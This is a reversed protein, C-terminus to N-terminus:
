MRVCKDGEPGYLVAVKPLPPNGHVGRDGVARAAPQYTVTGPARGPLSFLRPLIPPCIPLRPCPESSFVRCPNPLLPLSSAVLIEIARMPDLKINTKARFPLANHSPPSTHRERNNGQGYMIRLGSYWFLVHYQSNVPLPCLPPSRVFGGDGGERGDRSGPFRSCVIPTSGVSGTNSWWGELGTVQRGVWGAHGVRAASTAGRGATCHAKEGPHQTDEHPIHSPHHLCVTSAQGSRTGMYTPPSGEEGDHPSPHPQHHTPQKKRKEKEVGM